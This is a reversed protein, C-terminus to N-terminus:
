AWRLVYGKAAKQRGDLVRKANSYDLRLADCADRLTQFTGVYDGDQRAVVVASGQVRKRPKREMVESWELNCARNDTRDGNKHVVYPRLELNPIFARAVLYAVKVQQVGDPGSLSVYRGRVLVLECGGSLVKGDETVEYKGGFGPISKKRAVNSSFVVMIIGKKVGAAGQKKIGNQGFRM